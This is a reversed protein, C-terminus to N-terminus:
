TTATYYGYGYGAGYGEGGNSDSIVIAVNAAGLSELTGVSYHRLWGALEAQTVQTYVAM